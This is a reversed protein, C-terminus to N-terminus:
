MLRRSVTVFTVISPAFPNPYKWFVFIFVVQFGGVVTKRDCLIEGIIGIIVILLVHRDHVRVHHRLNKAM